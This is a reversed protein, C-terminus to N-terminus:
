SSNGGFVRRDTWHEGGPASDEEQKAPKEEAKPKPKTEGAPKDSDEDAEERPKPFVEDWDEDSFELMAEKVQQIQAKRKVTNMAEEAQDVSIGHAKAYRELASEASEVDEKAERREEPTRAKKLDEVAALLADFKKELAEVRSDSLTESM